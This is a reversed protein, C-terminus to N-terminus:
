DPKNSELGYLEGDIHKAKKINFKEDFIEAEQKAFEKFKLRKLRDREAKKPKKDKLLRGDKGIMHTSTKFEVWGEESM